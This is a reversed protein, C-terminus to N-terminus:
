ATVALAYRRAAENEVPETGKPNTTLHCLKGNQIRVAYISLIM